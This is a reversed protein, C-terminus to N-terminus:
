KEKGIKEAAREFVRRAARNPSYKNLLSVRREYNEAAQEHVFDTLSEYVADYDTPKKSDGILATTTGDGFLTDIMARVGACYAIIERADTAGVPLKKFEGRMALVAADYRELVDTDNMDLPFSHERYTWTTNIEAM